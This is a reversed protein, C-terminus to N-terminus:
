EEWASVADEDGEVYLYDSVSATFWYEELYPPYSQEMDQAEDATMRQAGEPVSTSDNQARYYTGNQWIYGEIWVARLGELRYFACTELRAADGADSRRRLVLGGDEATCLTYRYMAGLGPLLDVIRGEGDLGYLGCVEDGEAGTSYLILEFAGDGNVDELDLGHLNLAEWADEQQWSMGRVARVFARIVSDYDRLADEVPDEQEYEDGPFGEEEFGSLDGSGEAAACSVLLMLAMVLLLARKM